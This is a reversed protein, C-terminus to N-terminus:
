IPRNVADWPINQEQNNQNDRRTKEGEDPKLRKIITRILSNEINLQRFPLLFLIAIHM